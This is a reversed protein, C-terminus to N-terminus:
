IIRNEQRENILGLSQGALATIRLQLQQDIVKLLKDRISEVGDNETSVDGRCVIETPVEFFLELAHIKPNHGTLQGSFFTGGL